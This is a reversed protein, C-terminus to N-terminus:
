NELIWNEYGGEINIVRYGQKNLIQCINKSSIGRQCYIYYTKYRDLYENPNVLLKEYPINKSNPIHNNNYNFSNRIDIINATDMIKLLEKVGISSIM